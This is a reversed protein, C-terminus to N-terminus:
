RQKYHQYSDLGPDPEQDLVAEIAAYSERPLYSASAREYVDERVVICPVRGVVISVAQGAELAVQQELTLEM